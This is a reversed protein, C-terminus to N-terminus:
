AEPIYRFVKPDASFPTSSCPFSLKPVQIFGISTSKCNRIPTPISFQAGRLRFACKRIRESENPNSDSRSKEPSRLRFAFKRIRANVNPNRESQFGFPKEFSEELLVGIESEYVTQSKYYKIFGIRRGSGPSPPPCHMSGQVPDWAGLPSPSVKVRADSKRSVKPVACYSKCGFDWPKAAERFFSCGRGASDRSWLRTGVKAVDPSPNQTGFLTPVNQRSPFAYLVFRKLWRLRRLSFGM